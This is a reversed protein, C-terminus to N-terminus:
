NATDLRFRRIKSHYDRRAGDRVVCVLSRLFVKFSLPNPNLKNVSLLESRQHNLMSNARASLPM